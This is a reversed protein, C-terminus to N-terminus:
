VEREAAARRNGLIRSVIAGCVGVIIAPVAIFYVTLLCGLEVTYSVSVVTPSSASQWSSQVLILMVFAALFTLSFLSLTFWRKSPSGRRRRIWLDVFWAGIFFLLPCVLFLAVSAAIQTSDIDTM